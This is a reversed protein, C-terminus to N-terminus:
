IFLCPVDLTCSSSAIYDAITPRRGGISQFVGGDAGFVRGNHRAFFDCKRAEPLFRIFVYILVTSLSLLLFKPLVVSSFTIFHVM